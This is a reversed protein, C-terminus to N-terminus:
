VREELTEIEVPLTADLDAINARIAAAVAATGQPSRVLVSGSRAGSGDGFVEDPGHKRVLYYEPEPDRTLGRDRIDGVVGVVTHWQGKETPFIHRGVPEEGAFLRRALTQNIVIASGAPGRDLEEFSRGRLLPIGLAAFYGPTVYRWAVGGGTGEPLR